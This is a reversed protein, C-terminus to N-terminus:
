KDDNQGKKDSCRCCVGNVVFRNDTVVFGNPVYVPQIPVEPLCYVANCSTCHFHMHQSSENMRYAVLAESVDIRNVISKEVFLKLTRYLTVRDPNQELLPEIERVSLPRDARLFVELLQVRIPTQHLQYHKLIEAVTM